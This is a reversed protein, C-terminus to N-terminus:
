PVWPKQQNRKTSNRRKRGGSQSKVLPVTKRNPFPFPLDGDVCYTVSDAVDKIIKYVSRLTTDNDMPSYPKNRAKDGFLVFPVVQISSYLNSSNNVNAPLDDVLITNCPLFGPVDLVYWLYNLDKSNGHIAESEAAHESSWIHAFREPHGDTLLNSVGKAYAADSWTWLSVRYKAFLLKLFKRVEPRFVFVDKGDIAAEYKAKEIAPVTAWKEATLYHILTEDIDLVVNLSM